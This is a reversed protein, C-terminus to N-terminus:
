KVVTKFSLVVIVNQNVEMGIYILCEAYMVWVDDCLLSCCMFDRAYIRDIMYELVDVYNFLYGDM